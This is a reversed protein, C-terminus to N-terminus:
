AKHACSSQLMSCSLKRSWSFCSSLFTSVSIGYLQDLLGLRHSFFNPLFYFYFYPVSKNIIVNKKVQNLLNTAWNSCNGRRIQYVRKKRHRTVQMSPAVFLNKRRNENKRRYVDGFTVGGCRGDSYLIPALYTFPQKKPAFTPLMNLEIAFIPGRCFCTFSKKPTRLGVRWKRLM